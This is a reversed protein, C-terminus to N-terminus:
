LFKPLPRRSPAPTPNLNSARDPVRGMGVDPDAPIGCLSTEMPEWDTVRYTDGDTDSQKELTLEHVRYGVSTNVLIEDDVDRLADSATANRSFRSVGRGVRAKADISAQEIIGIVQRQDHSMLLPARGSSMFGMRVAKPSHDLIEKGFWRDVPHESSFTFSRKRNDESM